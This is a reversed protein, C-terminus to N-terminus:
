DRQRKCNGKKHFTPMKEDFTARVASNCNKCFLMKRSKYAWTTFLIALGSTVIIAMANAVSIGHLVLDGVGWAVFPIAWWPFRLLRVKRIPM